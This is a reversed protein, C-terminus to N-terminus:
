KNLRGMPHQSPSIQAVEHSTIELSQSNSAEPTSDALKRKKKTTTQVITEITQSPPFSMSTAPADNDFPMISSSAEKAKKTRKKPTGGSDQSEEAAKGTGSGSAASGPRAGGHVGAPKQAATVEPAEVHAGSMAAVQVGRAGAPSRPDGDGDARRRASADGQVVTAPAGEIRVAAARDADAEDPSPGPDVAGVDPPRSPTAM